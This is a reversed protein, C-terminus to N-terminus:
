CPHHRRLWKEVLPVLREADAKIEPRYHGDGLVRGPGATFRDTDGKRNLFELWRGGVLPSVTERGYARIAVRRLLTNLQEVLQRDDMGALNGALNSLERRAERRFRGRSIYRVLYRAAVAALVLVMIGLLWWGPAPPWWGVPEPLHIDRLQALPDGNM